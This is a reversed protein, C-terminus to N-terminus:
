LITVKRGEIKLRGQQFLRIADPYARCEEEFVRDALSKPTDGEVVPVTRQLIIPGNDYDNDAFHVTCGSVKVGYDLAAQHVKEGWYDRGCFSPILAPHINMVKGMYKDPIEYLCNFGAMIILDVTHKNLQATIENSFEKVDKYGKREVVVAPIGRDSARQLGYADGRSSVVVEIRADLLGEEIKTVLNQLTRGTGSLLVALHIPGQM